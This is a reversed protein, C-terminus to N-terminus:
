SSLKCSPATLASAQHGHCALKSADPPPVASRFIRKQFVVDPAQMLETSVFDCTAENSQFLSCLSSMDPWPKECFWSVIQFYGVIAFTASSVPWECRMREIAMLGSPVVTRDAAPSSVRRKQFHKALSTVVLVLFTASTPLPRTM